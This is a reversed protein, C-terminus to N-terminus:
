MASPYEWINPHFSPSHSLNSHSSSGIPTYISKLHESCKSDSILTHAAFTKLSINPIAGDFSDSSLHILDNTYELKVSHLLPPQFSSMDSPQFLLDTSTAM